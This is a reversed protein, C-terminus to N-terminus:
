DDKKNVEEDSRESRDSEDVNEKKKDGSKSEKLFTPSQSVSVKSWTRSRQKSSWGGPEQTQAQEQRAYYEDLVAKYDSYTADSTSVGLHSAMYVQMNKAYLLADAKEQDSPYYVDLVKFEAYNVFQCVSRLIIDIADSGGVLRGTYCPNFHKYDFRFVVPQVPQSTAFVGKAFQFLSTQNNTTGEPFVMLQPSAPDKSRHIIQELTKRKSDKDDRNVLIADCAQIIGKFLPISANEARSVFSPFASIFLLVIEYLGIHNAIILKVESKPAFTGHRRITYFGLFFM